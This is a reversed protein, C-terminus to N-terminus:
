KWFKPWFYGWVGFVCRFGFVDTVPDFGFRLCLGPNDFFTGFSGISPGFIKPSFKM